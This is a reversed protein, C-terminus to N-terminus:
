RVIRIKKFVERKLERLGRLNRRKIREERTSASFPKFTGFSNVKLFIDLGIRKEQSFFERNQSFQEM